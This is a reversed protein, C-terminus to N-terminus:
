KNMAAVKRAHPKGNEVYYKFDDLFDDGLKTLKMKAVPGLIVGMLGTTEIILNLNLRTINDNVESLAWTANVSKIFFPTGAIAKYSLSHQGPNFSTLEQQTDGQTTGTSRISYNVGDFKGEGSVTSSHILSSWKDIEGFQNGLVEWVEDISKGITIEKKIEM